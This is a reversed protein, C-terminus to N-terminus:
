RGGPIRYVREAQGESIKEWVRPTPQTASPATPTPEEWDIVANSWNHGETITEM